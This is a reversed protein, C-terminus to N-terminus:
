ATQLQKQKKLFKRIVLVTEPAATGRLMTYILVTREIGVRMSFASVSKAESSLKKLLEVEQVDLPQSTKSLRKKINNSKTMKLNYTQFVVCFYYCITVFHYKTVFTILM